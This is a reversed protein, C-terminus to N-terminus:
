QLPRARELDDGLGAGLASREGGHGREVEAVDRQRPHAAGDGAGAVRPLVADLEEARGAPGRLDPAGQEVEAPGEPEGRAAEGRAVREAELGPEREVAVVDVLGRVGDLRAQGPH